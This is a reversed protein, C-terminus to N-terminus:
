NEWLNQNNLLEEEEEEEFDFSKANLTGDDGASNHGGSTDSLLSEFPMHIVKMEPRIYTRRELEEKKM